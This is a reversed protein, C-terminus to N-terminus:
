SAARRRAREYRACEPCPRPEPEACCCVDEVTQCVCEDDLFGSGGCRSCDADEDYDPELISTM